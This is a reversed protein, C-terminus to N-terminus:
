AARRRRARICAGAEEDRKIHREIRWDKCCFVEMKAVHVSNDIAQPMPSTKDYEHSASVEVSNFTVGVLFRPRLLDAHELERVL